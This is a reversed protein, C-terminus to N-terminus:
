RMGVSIGFLKVDPSLTIHRRSYFSGRANSLWVDYNADAMVYALSQRPNNMCYDDSSALVGHHLVVVKKKNQSQGKSNCRFITLNYGDETVVSHEEADYGYYEILEKQM